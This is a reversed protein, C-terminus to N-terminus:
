KTLAEINKPSIMYDLMTSLPNVEKNIFKFITTSKLLSPSEIKIYSMNKLLHKLATPSDGTLIQRITPSAMVAKIDAVAWGYKQKGKYYRTHKINQHLPHPDKAFTANSTLFTINKNRGLYLTSINFMNISYLDEKIPTIEMKYQKFLDIFTAITKDKKSELLLKFDINPIMGQMSFGELAFLIDGDVGNIFNSIDGTVKTAIRPKFEAISTNILRNLNEKNIAGNTVFLPTDSIYKVLKSGSKDLIALKKIEKKNKRNKPIIESEIEITGKEFRFQYILNNNLYDTDGAYAELLKIISNISNSTKFLNNTAILLDNKKNNLRKKFPLRDLSQPSAIVQKVEEITTAYNTGAIILQEKDYLIYTSKDPTIIKYSGGSLIPEQFLEKLSSELKEYNDIAIHITFLTKNAEKQYLIFYSKSNIDLSSDGSLVHLLKDTAKRKRATLKHFLLQKYLDSHDLIKSKDVLNQLDLELIATYGEDVPVIKYLKKNKANAAFITCILLTVILTIKKM